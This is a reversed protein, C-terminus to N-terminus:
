VGDSIQEEDKEVAPKALIYRGCWDEDPLVKPFVRMEAKYNYVPERRRCEFARHWANSKCCFKCTNCKPEGM